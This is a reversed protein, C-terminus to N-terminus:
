RYVHSVRSCPVWVSNGGCMWVKFALDYNEGGWLWLGSDYWGLEQFWQRDIAFLGGANTPARYPENAHSTKAAEQSPVVGEKYLLGQFIPMVYLKHGGVWEFLGRFHTNPGYMPSISFDNWDIREIIPVTLTKRDEHIPALLPPLWNPAVECHADLFVVVEGTAAMAGNNRARILGEREANRVLRVKTYYPRVLQQDLRAHLHELESKDDVLIIEHLFQQPSHNIVGHVTRLLTSWGENHFVIVVSATPLNTPYDWNRCGEERTDLVTRNLSIEDSVLQNFGYLNKLEEERIKQEPKLHHGKGGEGPGSGEPALHEPEFNGLKSNQFM